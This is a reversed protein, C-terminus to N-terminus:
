KSSGKSFTGQIYVHVVMKLFGTEIQRESVWDGGMPTDNALIIAGPKLEERLKRGLREVVNNTLYTIIVDDNSSDYAWFDTRVYELNRQGCVKKRMLAFLWPFFSIEIGVVEAQPLARAIQWTLLGTGSGLDVIRLRKGPQIPLTKLFEIIKRRAPRFSTLTPVGTRLTYLECSIFIVLALALIYWLFM